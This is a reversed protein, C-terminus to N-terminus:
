GITPVEAESSAGRQSGPALGALEREIESDLKSVDITMRDRYKPRRGKLMFILLTDSITLARRIAEDELKDTGSEIAADWQAAFEPDHDRHHYVTVRNVGVAAAAATVSQGTRLIDCFRQRKELTLKTPNLIISIPPEPEGTLVSDLENLKAAMSTLDGRAKAAQAETWVLQAAKLKETESGKRPM